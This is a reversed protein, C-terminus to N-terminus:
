FKEGLSDASYKSLAVSFIEVDLMTSDLIKVFACCMLANAAM